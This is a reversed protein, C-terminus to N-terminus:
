TGIYFDVLIERIIQVIGPWSLSYESIIFLRRDNEEKSYLSICVQRKIPLRTYLNYLVFVTVVTSIQDYTMVSEIFSTMEQVFVAKSLAM